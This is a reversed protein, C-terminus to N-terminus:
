CQRYKVLMLQTPAIVTILFERNRGSAHEPMKTDQQTGIMGSANVFRSLRAM